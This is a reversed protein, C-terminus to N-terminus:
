GYGQTISVRPMIKQLKQVVEVQLAAGACMLTHVSTLDLSAIRPDKTIAVAIAPVMRMITSKIASCSKIYQDYDFAPLIAIYNGM